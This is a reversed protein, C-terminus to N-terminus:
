IAGACMVQCQIESSLLLEPFVSFMIRLGLAVHFCPCHWRASSPDVPVGCEPCSSNGIHELTPVFIWPVVLASSM